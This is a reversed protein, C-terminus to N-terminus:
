EWPYAVADNSHLNWFGDDLMCQSISAVFLKLVSWTNGSNLSEGFSTPPVLNFLGRRLFVLFDSAVNSVLTQLCRLEPLAPCHDRLSLRSSGTVAGALCRSPM